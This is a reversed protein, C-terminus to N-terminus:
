AAVRDILFFLSESAGGAPVPADIQTMNPYLRLCGCNPCRSPGAQARHTLCHVRRTDVKGAGGRALRTRRPSAASDSPLNGGLIYGEGRESGRGASPGSESAGPRTRCLPSLGSASRSRLLSTSCGSIITSCPSVAVTIAAGHERRTAVGGPPGTS